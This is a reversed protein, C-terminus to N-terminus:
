EAKKIKVSRKVFKPDIVLKGVNENKLVEEKEKEETKKPNSEENDLSNLASDIRKVAEAVLLSISGVGILVKVISKLEM